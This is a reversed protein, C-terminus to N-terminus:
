QRVHASCWGINARGGIAVNAANKPIDAKPWFRLNRPKAILARQRRVVAKSM